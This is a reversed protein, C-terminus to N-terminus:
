CSLAIIKDKLEQAYDQLSKIREITLNFESLYDEFSELEKDKNAVIVNVFRDLEFFEEDADQYYFLAFEEDSLEEKAMEELDYKVYERGATDSTWEAIVKAIRQDLTREM